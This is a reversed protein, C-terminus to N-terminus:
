VSFGLHPYNPTLFNTHNVKEPILTRILHLNTKIIQFPQAPLLSINHVDGRLNLIIIEINLTHTTSMSLRRLNFNLFDPLLSFNRVFLNRFPLPRYKDDQCSEGSLGPWDPSFLYSKHPAHDSRLQIVTGIMEPPYFALLLASNSHELTSKFLVNLLEWPSGFCVQNGLHSLTQYLHSQM